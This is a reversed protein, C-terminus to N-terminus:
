RMRTLTPTNTLKRNNKHKHPKVVRRKIVTYSPIVDEHTEHQIVEKPQRILESWNKFGYNIGAMEAPRKGDLSMHPRIYNYHILWGDVFRMATEVNKLDRMVKTREKLTGHFREILNTNQEINFPSTRVHETDSGFSLEVGDIHPLISKISM